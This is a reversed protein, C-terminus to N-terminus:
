CFELATLAYVKAVRTLDPVIMLLAWLLLGILLPPHRAM